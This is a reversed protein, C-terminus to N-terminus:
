RLMLGGCGTLETQLPVPRLGFGEANRHRLDIVCHLRKETRQKGALVVFVAPDPLNHELRFRLVAGVGTVDLIDVDAAARVV